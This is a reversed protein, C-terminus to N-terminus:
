FQNNIQEAICICVYKKLKIGIRLTCVYYQNPKDPRTSSLDLGIGMVVGFDLHPAFIFFFQLKSKNQSM